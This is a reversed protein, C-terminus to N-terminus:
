AKRRRRAAFAVGFLGLLGFTSPEPVATITAVRINDLTVNPANAATGQRLNVSSIAAISAADTGTNTAAIYATDGLGFPNLPNVFLAGTDNGAGAVSDYRALISYQTNLSLDAGYNVTAGSSTGMALQFGGASARAYIRGYFNSTGGDGLHIFYDGTAQVATVFIDTTLFISSAVADATFTRNVDQGTTTLSVNGNSGTNAVAIPSVVSAGTIAWGDQGILPGDAYAPANFDTSYLIAANVKQVAALAVVPMLLLCVFRKM